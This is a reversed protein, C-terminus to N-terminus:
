SSLRLVFSFHQFFSFKKIKVNRLLVRLNVPHKIICVLFMGNLFLDGTLISSLFEFIVRRKNQM